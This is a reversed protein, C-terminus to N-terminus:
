HGILGVMQAVFILIFGMAALSAWSLTYKIHAQDM